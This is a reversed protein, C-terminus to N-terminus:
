QGSSWTGTPEYNQYGCIRLAAATRNEQYIWSILYSKLADETTRTAGVYNMFAASKTFFDLGRRGADKFASMKEAQVVKDFTYPDEDKRVACVAALAIYCDEPIIQTPRTKLENALTMVKQMAAKAKDDKSGIAVMCQAIMADSIAELTQRSISADIQLLIDEVQNVREAPMDQLDPWAFYEVGKDDLFAFPPHGGPRKPLLGFLRLLALRM